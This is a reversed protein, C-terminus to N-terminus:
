AKVEQSVEHDLNDQHDPFVMKVLNDEIEMKVMSVPLVSIEQHDEQELSVVNDQEVVKVEAEKKEVHVLM